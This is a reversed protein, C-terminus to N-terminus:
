DHLQHTPCSGTGKTDWWQRICARHFKCLCVLRGMESGQEFEEFCIVCEQREGDEGLCDKETATYVLMRNQRNIQPVGQARDPTNMPLQAQADSPMSASASIAASSALNPAGTPLSTSPGAGGSYLAICQQVHEERAVTSGNHGKPPLEQGCVPCEDEEPIQRRRSAVSPRRSERVSRSLDIAHQIRTPIRTPTRDRDQTVQPPSHGNRSTTLPPIRDRNQSTQPASRALRVTFPSPFGGQNQGDQPPSPRYEGPAAPHPVFPRREPLQVRTPSPSPRRVPKLVEPTDAWGDLTGQRDRVLYAARRAERYEYEDTRSRPRRVDELFARHINDWAQLVQRDREAVEEPTLDEPPFDGNANRCPPPPYTSKQLPLRAFPSQNNPINHGVMQSETWINGTPNWTRSMRGTNNQPAAQSTPMNVGALSGGQTRHRLHPDWRPARNHQTPQLRAPQPPPSFNPDPVCPNCVRVEERGGLHSHTPPPSPAEASDEEEEDSSMEIIPEEETTQLEDAALRDEPPRVIFQRPITIRHLSCNGCVVRGCKRCHHKRYFFTFSHGCVPCSSAEEDPQWPPVVIDTNRRSPGPTEFRLTRSRTTSASTSTPTAEREESDPTSWRRKTEEGLTIPVTDRPNASLEGSPPGSVEGPSLFNSHSLSAM